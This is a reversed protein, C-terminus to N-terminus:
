IRDTRASPMDTTTASGSQVRDLAIQVSAPDISFSDLSHRMYPAGLRYIHDINKKGIHGRAGCWHGGQAAVVARYVNTLHGVPFLEVLKIPAHTHDRYLIPALAAGHIAVIEDANLAYSIQLDPSLDEMYVKQFGRTSLLNTIDGENDLSRTSKRSLFLKKPSDRVPITKDKLRAAVPSVTPDTLLDCRVGRICNWDQFDMRVGFGSVDSDTYLCQLRILNAAARIYGPTQAPLLVCFTLPDIALARAALALFALHINLFHAWNEPHGARLDLIPHQDLKLSPQPKFRRLRSKLGHRRPPTFVHEGVSIRVPGGGTETAVLRVEECRPVIRDVLFSRPTILWGAPVDLANLSVDHAGSALFDSVTRECRVLENGTHLKDACAQDAM